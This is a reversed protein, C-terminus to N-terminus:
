GDSAPAAYREELDVCIKVCAKCVAAGPPGFRQDAVRRSTSGAPLIGRPGCLVLRGYSPDAAAHVFRIHVAGPRARGVIMAWEYRPHLGPLAAAVPEPKRREDPSNM